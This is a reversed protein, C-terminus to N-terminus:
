CAVIAHIISKVISIQVLISAVLLEFTGGGDWLGYFMLHVATFPKGLAFRAAGYNVGEDKEHGLAM